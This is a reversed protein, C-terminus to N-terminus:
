LLEFFLASTLLLRWPGIFVISIDGHDKTDLYPIHRKLLRQITEPSPHHYIQYAGSSIIGTKPKLTDLFLDCSGTKSGHHSLKLVDCRLNGYKRVATEESIQDADGCMVFSLGGAEFCLMQSSQNKDETSLSNIDHFTFFETITTGEHETIVRKVHFDEIIENMSGSHDSDMHTIFLTDIRNIGRAELAAKVSNYQSNKGTDILINEQNLPARILICDGQGVNIFAIEAFPHFLGTCMFLAFLACAIKAFHRNRYFSCVLCVFVPLGFGLVSGCLTLHDTILTVNMLFRILDLWALSPFLAIMLSYFWLLGTLRILYPYFFSQFLNVSHNLLSQALFVCAYRIYTKDDSAFTSFSFCFPYLFAPSLIQKRYILIMLICWLGTKENAKFKSLSLTRRLLSSILILRGGYFLVLLVNCIIMIKKVTKKELLFVLLSEIVLLIGAFSFGNQILFSGDILDKDTCNLLLRYVFAKVEPDKIEEIKKQLLRRPTDAESIVKIEDGAYQKEIGKRKLDDAFDYRFFGKASEITEFPADISILADYPLPGNSYVLFRSRKNQAISYNQHVEIIRAEKISEDFRYPQILLFLCLPMLILAASGSARRAFLFYVSCLACLPFADKLMLFCFLLFSALLINERFLKLPM